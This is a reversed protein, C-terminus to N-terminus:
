GSESADLIDEIVKRDVHFEGIHHGVYEERSYGLLDLEAQNVRIVIGAPDVWHLGITATEFFDTLETETRRM